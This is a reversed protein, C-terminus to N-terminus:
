TIHYVSGQKLALNFTPTGETAAAMLRGSGEKSAGLGGDEYM